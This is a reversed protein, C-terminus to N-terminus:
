NELFVLAIIEFQFTRFIGKFHVKELENLLDKKEQVFREEMQNMRTRNREDSDRFDLSSSSFNKRMSLRLSGLVTNLAFRFRQEYAQEISIQNQELEEILLVHRQNALQLQKYFHEARLEAEKLSCSFHLHFLLLEDISAM